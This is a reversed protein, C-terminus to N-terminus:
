EAYKIKAVRMVRKRKAELFGVESPEVPHDWVQLTSKQPHLPLNYRKEPHQLDSLFFMSVWLTKGDKLMVYYNGRSSRSEMVTVADNAVEPVAEEESPAEPEVRTKKHDREEEEEERQQSVTEGSEVSRGRKAVSSSSSATTSGWMSNVKGSASPAAAVAAPAFQGVTAKDKPKSGQYGPDPMYTAYYAKIVNTVRGDRERLRSFKAADYHKNIRFHDTVRVFGASAMLQDWDEQSRYWAEYEELFQPWEVPVSWALSYLGHTIDLFAGMEAGDCHHERMVLVGKPHIVRRLERMAAAAHRVHHMVMASTILMVSNDKLRPLINGLEPEQEPSEEPLQIFSFGDAPIARVDAGYVRSSPLHLQKGLEATIAGEACGYDLMSGIKSKIDDPVCELTMKVMFGARGDGEEDEGEQKTEEEGEKGAAAITTSEEEDLKVVLDEELTTGLVKHRVLSYIGFDDKGQRLAESVPTDWETATWKQGIASTKDALRQLVRQKGCDTTGVEAGMNFANSWLYRFQQRSKVAPQGQSGWSMVRQSAPTSSVISSQRSHCILLHVGGEFENHTMSVKGGEASSLASNAIESGGSTSYVFVLPLNKEEVLRKAKLLADLRMDHNVKDINILYVGDAVGNALDCQKIKDFEGSALVYSMLSGEDTEIENVVNLTTAVSGASAYATRPCIQKRISQIRAAASKIGDKSSIM